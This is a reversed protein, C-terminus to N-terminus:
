DPSLPTDPSRREDPIAKRSQVASDLHLYGLAAVHPFSMWPDRAAAVPGSMRVLDALTSGSERNAANPIAGVGFPAVTISIIQNPYVKWGAVVKRM